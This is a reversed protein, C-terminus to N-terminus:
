PEEMVAQWFILVDTGTRNDVRFVVTPDDGTLPINGNWTIGGPASPLLSPSRMWGNAILSSTLRRGGPQVDVLGRYSGSGATPGMGAHRLRGGRQLRVIETTGAGTAAVFTGAVFTARGM